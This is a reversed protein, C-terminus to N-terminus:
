GMLHQVLWDRAAASSRDFDPGVYADFHGGPLIVLQKPQRAREYAEFVLDSPTLVDGEAVVLLLPTPSVRDIYSIPEYETLMEVSRLTM